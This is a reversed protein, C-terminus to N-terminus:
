GHAIFAPRSKALAFSHDLSLWWLEKDRQLLRLHASTSLTYCIRCPATELQQIVLGPSDKQQFDRGPSRPLIFGISRHELQQKESLASSHLMKLEKDM